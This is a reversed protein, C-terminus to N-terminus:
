GAARGRFGTLALSARGSWWWPALNRELKSLNVFLKPAEDRQHLLWRMFLLLLTFVTITGQPRCDHHKAPCGHGILHNFKILTATHCRLFRGTPEFIERSRFPLPPKGATDRAVLQLYMMTQTPSCCSLLFSLTIRANGASVMAITARQMAFKIAGTCASTAM